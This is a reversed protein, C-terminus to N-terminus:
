RVKQFIPWDTALVEFEGGRRDRVVLDSYPRETDFPIYLFGKESLTQNFHAYARDANQTGLIDSLKTYKREVLYHEGKGIGHQPKLSEVLCIPAVVPLGMEHLRHTHLYEEAVKDKRLARKLEPNDDLESHAQGRKGSKLVADFYMFVSGRKPHTSKHEVVRGRMFEEIDVAQILPLYYEVGDSFVLHSFMCRALEDLGAEALERRVVDQSSFIKSEASIKNTM